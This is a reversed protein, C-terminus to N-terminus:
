FYHLLFWHEFMSNIRLSHPCRLLRLLLNDTTWVREAHREPGLRIIIFANVTLM